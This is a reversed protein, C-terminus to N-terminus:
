PDKMTILLSSKLEDPQMETCNQGGVQQPLRQVDQPLEAAQQAQQAADQQDNVGGLLLLHRGQLVHAALQQLRTLILM